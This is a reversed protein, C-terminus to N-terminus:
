EWFSEQINTKKTFYFDSDTLIITFANITEGFLKLEGVKPPNITYRGPKINMVESRLEMLLRGLANVGYLQNSDFPKAGWFDDKYSEEVIDKDFTDVILPYFKKFNQYMKVRLCWRMIQIRINEWDERSSNRFPKSKMKATMPSRQDIVMRQVDPLHPFRCAQYLAESTLIREGNISIPYGSAMNSLGGYKEKTKRFIIISNREYKRMEFKSKIM